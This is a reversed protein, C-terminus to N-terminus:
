PRPPNQRRAAEILANVDRGGHRKTTPQGNTSRGHGDRRSDHNDPPHTLARAANPAHADDLASREAGMGLSTEKAEFPRYFLSILLGLLPFFDVAFALLAYQPYTSVYRVAADARDLTRFSEVHILARGGNPTEEIRQKTDKVLKLLSARAAESNPDRRAPLMAVIADSKRVMALVSTAPSQKMESLLDNLRLTLNAFRVNIEQVREDHEAAEAQLSRMQSIIAEAEARDRKFVEDDKELIAAADSYTDAVSQIAAYVPGPTKQATFLGHDREDQANRNFSKAAQIVADRLEQERGHADRLDTVSTMAEDGITMMHRRQSPPGAIGTWALYTSTMLVFATVVVGSIVLIGGRTTPYSGLRPVADFIFAWSGVHFLACVFALPLAVSAETIVRLGRYNLYFGILAVVILAVGNRRKWKDQAIPDFGRM